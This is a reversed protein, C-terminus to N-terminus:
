QNTSDTSKKPIKALAAAPLTALKIEVPSFVGFFREFDTHYWWGVVGSTPYMTFTDVKVQDGATCFGIPENMFSYLKPDLAPSLQSVPINPNPMGAVAENSLGDVSQIVGHITTAYEDIISDILDRRLKPQQDPHVLALQRTLERFYQGVDTVALLSLDQNARPDKDSSLLLSLHEPHRSGLELLMKSAALWFKPDPQLDHEPLNTPIDKALAAGLDALVSRNLNVPGPVAVPPSNIAFLAIEDRCRKVLAAESGALLPQLTDASPFCDDQVHLWNLGAELLYNGRTDWQLERQMNQISIVNRQLQITTANTQELRNTADNVFAALTMDLQDFRLQVIKGLDIIAVYVQKMQEFLGEWRPDPTAQVVFSMAIEALMLYANTVAGPNETFTMSPQSLDFLIGAIQGGRAFLSAAEEDGIMQAMFSFVGSIARSNEKQEALKARNNDKNIWDAISKLGKVQEGTADTIQGKMGDLKSAMANVNIRLDGVGLGVEKVGNYVDGLKLNVKGLALTDADEFTKQAVLPNLELPLNLNLDPFYDIATQRFYKQFPSGDATLGRFPAANLGQIVEAALAPNLGPNGMADLGKQALLDLFHSPLDLGTQLKFGNKLSSLADLALAEVMGGRYNYGDVTVKEDQYRLALRRDLEEQNHPGPENQYKAYEGILSATLAAARAAQPRYTTVGAYISQPSVTGAPQFNLRLPPIEEADALGVTLLLALLASQVLQFVQTGAIVRLVPRLRMQWGGNKAVCYERARWKGAM